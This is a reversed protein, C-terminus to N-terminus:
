AKLCVTEMRGRTHSLSGMKSLLSQLVLFARIHHACPLYPCMSMLPVDLRPSNDHHAARGSASALGEWIDQRSISPVVGSLPGEGAGPVWLAAQHASGARCSRPDNALGDAWSRLLDPRPAHSPVSTWPCHLRPLCWLPASISQSCSSPAPGPADEMQSTQRKGDARVKGRAGSHRM